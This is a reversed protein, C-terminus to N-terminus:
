RQLGAAEIIKKLKVLTMWELAGADRDREFLFGVLVGVTKGNGCFPSPGDISQESFLCSPVTLIGVNLRKKPGKSSDPM